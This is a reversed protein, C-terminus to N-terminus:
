QSPANTMVWDTVHNNRCSIGADHHALRALIDQGGGAHSETDIRAKADSTPVKIAPNRPTTM